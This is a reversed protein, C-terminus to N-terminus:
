VSRARCRCVRCGPMRGCGCRVGVTTALYRLMGAREQRTKTCALAVVVADGASWVSARETSLAEIFAQALEELSGLAGAESEPTAM